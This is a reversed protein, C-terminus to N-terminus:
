EAPAPSENGAPPGSPTPSGTDTPEPVTSSPPTTPETPLVSPTETPEGTPTTSPDTPTDSPQDSPTVGGSPEPDRDRHRDGGTDRDVVRSISTGKGNSGGTLSSVPRGGILEFATIAVMVVVFTGLAWPLVTRWPVAAWREKLTRHARAGEAYSAGEAGLVADAVDPDALEGDSALRSAEDASVERVGGTRFVVLVKERSTNIGRAFMASSTTAVVSGVAAGILTGGAGLTSLIVASSVAALAAAVVAVWDLGFPGRRERM